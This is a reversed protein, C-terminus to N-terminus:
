QQVISWAGDATVIVVAPGESTPVVGSYKGIDNALLDQGETGIFKIAFNSKGSHKLAWDVAGGDWLLVSDGKGDASAAFVKATSVPAITITWPGDATVKLKAPSGESYMTKGSYSGITNVLLDTMDNGSDMAEISFNSSGKHTAKVTAAEVGAPLKVVGDGKGKKTIPAFSGYASTTATVVYPV